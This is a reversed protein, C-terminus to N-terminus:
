VIKINFVLFCDLIERLFYKTCNYIDEKTLKDFKKLTFMSCMYLPKNSHEVVDNYKILRTEKFHSIILDYEFSAQLTQISYLFKIYNGDEDCLCIDAFDHLEEYANSIYLLQQNNKFYEKEIISRLKKM